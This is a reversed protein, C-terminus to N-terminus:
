LALAVAPYFTAYALRVEVPLLAIRVGFALFFLVLALGYRGWSGLFSLLSARPPM